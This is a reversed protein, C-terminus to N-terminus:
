APDSFGAESLFVDYFCRPKTPVRGRLTPPCVLGVYRRGESVWICGLADLLRLSLFCGGLRLGDSGAAGGVGINIDRNGLTQRIQRILPGTDSESQGM